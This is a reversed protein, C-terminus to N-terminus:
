RALSKEKGKKKGFCREFETKREIHIKMEIQARRRQTKLIRETRCKTEKKTYADRQSKSTNKKESKKKYKKSLDKAIKDKDKERM